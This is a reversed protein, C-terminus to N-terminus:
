QSPEPAREEEKGKPQGGLIAPRGPGETTRRGSVKIRSGGDYM